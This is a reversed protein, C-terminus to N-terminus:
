RLDELAQRLRDFHTGAACKEKFGCDAGSNRHHLWFVGALRELCHLSDLANLITDHRKLAEYTTLDPM